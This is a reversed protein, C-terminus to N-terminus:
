GGNGALSQVSGYVGRVALQEGRGLVVGPRGVLDHAAGLGHQRVGSGRQAPEAAVWGGGAGSRRHGGM